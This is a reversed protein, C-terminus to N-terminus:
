IAESASVTRWVFPATNAARALADIVAGGFIQAVLNDASTFPPGPYRNLARLRKLHEAQAARSVETPAYSPGRSIGEAPEVILLDKHFYIALWAEWHTYTLSKFADRGLGKEALRTELEPRRMLLDDVSSAAPASGAMDGVFHIVSDCRELYEELTRLTDGGLAKFDEQVYVQVNPRTLARRLADRYSGFEDAVCSIFLSAGKTITMFDPQDARLARPMVTGPLPRQPPPTPSPAETLGLKRTAIESAIQVIEDAADAMQQERDNLSYSSLPKADHPRMNKDRVIDLAYKPTPTLLIPYFHVDEGKTQRERIIEIEKDVVYDSSMSHRSVLLIFIDCNRLKSEIEDDWDDGGRMLRDIWIDIKGFKIAPRLYGQVFTLWQVADGVVKEPQDEHAYSIFTIPKTSDTLM